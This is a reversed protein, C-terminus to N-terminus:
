VNKTYLFKLMDFIIPVGKENKKEIKQEIEANGAELKTMDTETNGTVITSDIM